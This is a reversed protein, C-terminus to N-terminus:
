NTMPMVMTPVPLAGEGPLARISTGIALFEIAHDGWAHNQEIVRVGVIGSAGDREAEAQMRAMAIERADYTAQTFNPMETNRGMTKMAQLFSQHAVHYVCTGLVFSVPAHGTKVLTWMDQGSLDSTFPKGAPTRWSGGRLSRVATGVALFELLETAWAYRKYELRVGVIGDARLEDAEAEMRAIAYERATYMAQTLVQLEQSQSWSQVQIGVHYISSGLVLGVPEFGAEHILAFENISLDSTFLRPLGDAEEAPGAQRLRALATQSIISQQQQPPPQSM